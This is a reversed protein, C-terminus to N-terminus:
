GVSQRGTPIVIKRMHPGLKGESLALEIEPVLSAVQLALRDYDAEKPSRLRWLRLSFWEGLPELGLARLGPRLWPRAHTEFHDHLGGAHLEEATRHGGLTMM